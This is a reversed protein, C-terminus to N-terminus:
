KPEKKKVVVKIKTGDPLHRIQRGLSAGSGRNDRPAIPRVSAGKGGEKTVAPPYEDRDKGKVKPKGQLSEKRRNKAGGRDVTLTGPKGAKQADEIHRASEPYKSADIKVETASAAKQFKEPIPEPPCGVEAMCQGGGSAYVENIARGVEKVDVNKAAEYTTVAAAAIWTAAEAAAAAGEQLMEEVAEGQHGDPDVFKLPNNYAYQYKNLSQPRTIEAYFTPNRAAQDTFEFLEDPGGKFEDPSTFRGQNSSYYRAEFYDLGTENDREKSTFKQRTTDTTTYGSIVNRGGFSNAIEEGFPLYDYRAKAASNATTQTTVAKSGDTVVRTSGLHDATLYRTGTESGATNTAYEAVPKGSADYVYTTTVALSGTGTVKKVRRGEGDYTYVAGAGGDFSVM